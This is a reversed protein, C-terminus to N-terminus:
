VVGMDLLMKNTWGEVDARTKGYNEIADEQNPLNEITRIVFQLDFNEIFETSRSPDLPGHDPDLLALLDTKDKGIKGELFVRDENLLSENSMRWMRDRLAKLKYLFLLEKIPVRAYTSGILRRMLYEPNACLGYPLKKDYDERFLNEDEFSCADIHVDGIFEEKEYVHKVWFQTLGLDDRPELVYNHSNMYLNLQQYFPSRPGVCDIDFSGQYPNYSYVAWGGIITVTTGYHSEFWGVLTELESLSAARLKDAKTMSMNIM